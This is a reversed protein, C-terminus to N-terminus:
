GCVAKHSDFQFQLLETSGALSALRFSKRLNGSFAHSFAYM